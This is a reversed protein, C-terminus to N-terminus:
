VIIWFLSGEVIHHGNTINQKKKDFLSKTVLM